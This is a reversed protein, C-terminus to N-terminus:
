QKDINWYKANIEKQLQEVSWTLGGARIYQGNWVISFKQGASLGFFPMDDVPSLISGNTLGLDNAPFEKAQFGLGGYIGKLEIKTM